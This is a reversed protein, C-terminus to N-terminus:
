VVKAETKLKTVLENVDKVKVGAARKPPLEAAAYRVKPTTDAALDTLKMEALPKKKAAMIAM